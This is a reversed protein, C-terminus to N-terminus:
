AKAAEVQGPTKHPRSAPESSLEPGKQPKSLATQCEPNAIKPQVEVKTAKKKQGLECDQSETTPLEFESM